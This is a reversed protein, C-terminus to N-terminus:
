PDVADGVRACRTPDVVFRTASRRGNPRLTLDDAPEGSKRFLAIEVRPGGSESPRETTRWILTPDLGSPEAGEQWRGERAALVRETLEVSLQARGALRWGDYFNVLAVGALPNWSPIREQVEAHFTAADFTSWPQTELKEVSDEVAEVLHVLSARALSRAVPQAIAPVEEFTSSRLLGHVMARGGELRMVLEYDAM